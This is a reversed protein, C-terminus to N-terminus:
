RKKQTGNVQILGLINAWIMTSPERVRCVIKKKKARDSAKKTRWKWEKQKVMFSSLCINRSEDITEENKKQENSFINCPLRNKNQPLPASTKEKVCAIAWRHRQTLKLFCFFQVSFVNYIFSGPSMQITTIQQLQKLLMLLTVTQYTLSSSLTLPLLKICIEENSSSHCVSCPLPLSCQTRETHM